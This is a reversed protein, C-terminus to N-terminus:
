RNSPASSPAHLVISSLRSIGEVARAFVEQAAEMQISAAALPTQCQGIKEVAKLHAQVMDSSLALWEKSLGQWLGCAAQASDVHASLAQSVFEHAGSPLQKQAM